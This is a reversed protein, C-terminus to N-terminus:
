KLRIRYAFYASFLGLLPLVIITLYFVLKVQIGNIFMPQEDVMPMSLKVSAKAFSFHELGKLVFDFNNSFKAYNNEVFKSNGLLFLSGQNKVKVIASLTVPGPRDEGANYRYAQKMMEDHNMEAWSHPSETTVLIPEVSLVQPAGEKQVNIAEIHSALPFFIPFKLQFLDKAGWQSSVLPVTGKSGNVFQYRDIVFSNKIAVGYSEMWKRLSPVNDEGVSPDLAILLNKGAKLFSTLRALEAQSFDVKPGWIMLTEFQENIKGAHLNIESVQVDARALFQGFKDLGSGQKSKLSAENHNTTFAVQVRKGNMLKKFSRAFDVHTFATLVDKRGMYEIIVSQESEISFQKLLDPRLHPQYYHFEMDSKEHQLQNMYSRFANFSHKPSIISLKLQGPIKKLLSKMEPPLSHIHRGSLDFSKVNKFALYNSFGLIMTVLGLTILVGTFHKFWNSEYLHRFKERYSFILAGTVLVLLVSFALNFQTYETLTLWTGINTVGLLILVSILFQFM